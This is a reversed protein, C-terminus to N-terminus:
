SSPGPAKAARAQHSSAQSPLRSPHRNEVSAQLGPVGRMLRQAQVRRGLTLAGEGTRRVHFQHDVGLMQGLPQAIWFHSQDIGTAQRTKATLDLRDVWHGPM